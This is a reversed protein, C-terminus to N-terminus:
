ITSIFTNKYNVYDKISTGYKDRPNSGYRLFRKMGSAGGLHSGYIIGAETIEVGHVTKGIYWMYSALSKKNDEILRKIAILQLEPPFIDPDSKFEELTFYGFGYQPLYKINMQWAGIFGWPNYAEYNLSSERVALMYLGLQNDKLNQNFNDLRMTNITKHIYSYDTDSLSNIATFQTIFFIAIIILMRKM